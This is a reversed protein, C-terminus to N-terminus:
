RSIRCKYINLPLRSHVMRLSERRSECRKHCRSERQYHRSRHKTTSTHYDTTTIEEPQPRRELWECIGADVFPNGMLKEYIPM